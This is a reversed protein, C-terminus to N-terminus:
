SFKWFTTSVSQLMKFQKDEYNIEKMPFLHLLTLQLWILSLLAPFHEGKLMDVPYLETLV